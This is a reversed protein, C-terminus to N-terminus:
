GRKLVTEEEVQRRNRNLECNLDKEAYNREETGETQERIGNGAIIIM